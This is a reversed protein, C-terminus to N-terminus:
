RSSPKLTYSCWDTCPQDDAVLLELQAPAYVASHVTWLGGMSQQKIPSRRLAECLESRTKPAGGKVLQAFGQCRIANSEALDNLPIPVLGSQLEEIEFRNVAWAFPKGRDRVGSRCHVKEVIATRGTADALVFVLGFGSAPLEVILEIAEDVDHTRELVVRPLVCGALGDGQGCLGPGGTQVMALGHENMGSDTWITGPWIVNLYREGQRDPEVRQVYYWRGQHAEADGNKGCVAGLDPDVLVMASCASRYMDDPPTIGPIGDAGVILNLRAVDEFAVGSGIAIGVLEEIHHAGGFRSLSEIERELRRAIAPDGSWSSPCIESILKQIESSLLRGHQLGRAMAPGHQDLFSGARTM